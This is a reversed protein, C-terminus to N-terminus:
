SRPFLRSALNRFCCCLYRCFTRRRGRSPQAPPPPLHHFSGPVSITATTESLPSPSGLSGTPDIRPPAQPSAPRPAQPRPLGQHCPSTQPIIKSGHGCFGLPPAARPSWGGRLRSPARRVAPARRVPRASLHPLARGRAAALPQAPRAAAAAPVRRPSLPRPPAPGGPQGRAPSAASSRLQSAQYRDSELGAAQPTSSVRDKFPHQPM